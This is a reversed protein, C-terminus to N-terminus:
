GEDIEKMIEQYFMRGTCGTFSTVVWAVEEIEDRTIGEALASQFHSKFCPECREAISLALAILRKTKGDVKGPRNTVGM